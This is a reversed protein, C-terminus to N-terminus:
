NKKSPLKTPKIFHEMLRLVMALFFVPFCNTSYEIIQISDTYNIFKIKYDKCNPDSYIATDGVFRIIGKVSGLKLGQVLCLSMLTSDNGNNLLYLSGSYKESDDRSLFVGSIKNSKNCSIM